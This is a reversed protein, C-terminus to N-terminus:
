HLSDKYYEEIVCQHEKTKPNYNIGVFLIKGTYDELSKVYDKEKIQSLASPASHNWKLEIIM